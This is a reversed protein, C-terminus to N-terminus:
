GAHVPDDDGIGRGSHCSLTLLMMPVVALDQFILIGITTRGHISDSDGKEALTKLM